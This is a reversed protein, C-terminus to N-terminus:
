DTSSDTQPIDIEAADLAEVVAHAIQRTKQNYTLGNSGSYLGSLFARDFETWEDPADASFLSTISPLDASESSAARIGALGHVAGFDAIQTLTKGEIGERSFVVFALVTDQRVPSSLRSLSAGPVAYAGKSVHQPPGSGLSVQELMQVPGGDARRPQTTHWVWAPGLSRRLGTIESSSMSGFMKPGKRALGDILAAGDEAVIVTLNPDCGEPALDGGVAHVDERMRRVVAVAYHGPMGAVGPCVPTEFRALNGDVDQSLDRVQRLTELADPRQGEVVIQGANDQAAVLASSVLGVLCGILIRM